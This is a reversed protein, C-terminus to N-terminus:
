QLFKLIKPLFIVGGIIVSIIAFVLVAGAAIDKAQKALPHYDETSLDVAREIATNLLELSFMGGIALLIIMWELRTIGFYIGSFMVALSVALHIQLNRENVLAMRIGSFAFVFSKLVNHKRVKKDQSGSNM